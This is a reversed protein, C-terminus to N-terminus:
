SSIITIEVRRNKNKGIETDFTAIPVRAGQGSTLVRRAFVTNKVVLYTRVKSARESSLKQAVSYDDNPNAHGVIRVESKPNEDMWRALEDLFIKMALTPNTEGKNSYTFVFKAGTKFVYPEPNQIVKTSDEKINTEQIFSFSLFAILILFSLGYYRNM